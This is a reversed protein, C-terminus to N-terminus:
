IVHCPQVTRLLFFSMQQGCQCLSPELACTLKRTVTQPPPLHTDLNGNLWPTAPTPPSQGFVNLLCIPKDVNFGLANPHPPVLYYFLSNRPFISWFPSQSLTTLGVFKKLNKKLGAPIKRLCDWQQPPPSRLRRGGFNRPLLGQATEGRADIKKREIQTHFGFVSLSM